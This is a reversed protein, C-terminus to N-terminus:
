LTGSSSVFRDPSTTLARTKVGPITGLLTESECGKVTRSGTSRGVITNTPWRSGPSGALTSTLGTWATIVVLVDPALMWYANPSENPARPAQVAYVPGTGNATPVMPM